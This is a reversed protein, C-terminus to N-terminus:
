EDPIEKKNEIVLTPRWKGLDYDNLYWGYEKYEDIESVLCEIAEKSSKVIPKPDDKNLYIYTEHENDDISHNIRTISCFDSIDIMVEDTLNFHISLEYSKGLQIFWKYKEIKITMLFIYKM